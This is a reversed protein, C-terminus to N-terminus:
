YREFVEAFYDIFVRAKNSLGFRSPYVAYYSFEPTALDPLVTKILGQELPERALFSPIPAIGAGQVVLDRVVTLDNIELFPESLISHAQNNQDVMNTIGGGRMDGMRMLRHHKLDEVSDLKGANSLYSPAAYLRIRDSGIRKSVLSSDDLRGVRFALDFGEGILDVRRNDLMLKLDIKPYMSIFDNLHPGIIHQGMSVSASVFLTGSPEANLENITALADRKEDVMRQCHVLLRKGMETLRMSRTNREILRTGLQEELKALRRSVKSKPINLIRAAGSISSQEAIAAFMAMDNLDIM